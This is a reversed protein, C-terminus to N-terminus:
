VSFCGGKDGWGHHISPIYWSYLTIRNANLYFAKGIGNNGIGISIAYFAADLIQSIVNGYDMMRLDLTHLVM